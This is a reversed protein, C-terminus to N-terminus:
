AHHDLMWSLFRADLGCELYLKSHIGMQTNMWQEMYPLQEKSM